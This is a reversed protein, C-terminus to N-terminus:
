ISNLNAVFIGNELDCLYVNGSNYDITTSTRWLPVNDVMSMNSKKYTKSDLDFYWIERCDQVQAMGCATSGGLMVWKNNFTVTKSPGGFAYPPRPDPVQLQQFSASGAKLEGYLPKDPQWWFGCMEEGYWLVIKDKNVALATFHGGRQGLKLDTNSVLRICKAHKVEGNQM